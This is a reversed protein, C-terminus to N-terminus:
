QVKYDTRLGEFDKIPRWSTSLRAEGVKRGEPTFFTINFCDREEEIGLFSGAQSRKEKFDEVIKYGITGGEISFAHGDSAEFKHVTGTPGIITITDVLRKTDEVVGM